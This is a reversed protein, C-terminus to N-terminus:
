DFWHCWEGGVGLHPPTRASLILLPMRAQEAPSHIIGKSDACKLVYGAFETGSIAARAPSM